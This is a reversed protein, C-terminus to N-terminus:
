AEESGRGTTLQDARGRRRGLAQWFGFGLPGPQGLPGFDRASAGLGRGRPWVLGCARPPPCGWFSEGRRLIRQRGQRARPRWLPTWRWLWPLLIIDLEFFIVRVETEDIYALGWTSSKKPLGVKGRFHCALVSWVATKGTHTIQGWFCSFRKKM